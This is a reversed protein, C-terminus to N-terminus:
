YVKGTHESDPSGSHTQVVANAHIEDIVGQCFAELIERRYALAAANDSGQVLAVAAVRAEIFDAMSEKTLGM